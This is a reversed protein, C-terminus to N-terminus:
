VTIEGRRISEAIAHARTHVNLKRMASAVHKNVTDEAIRLISGTDWATKGAAAWTMVECERPSLVKDQRATSRINALRNFAFIGIMQVTSYAERVTEVELGAFSIGAQYGNLGHIPICLGHRMHYDTSSITMVSQATVDDPPIPVESWIFARTQRRLFAAVPDHSTFNSQRYQEFWGKPWGNLLVKDDFARNLPSPAAIVCLHQYGFSSVTQALRQRLATETDSSEFADLADM